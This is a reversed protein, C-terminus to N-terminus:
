NQPQSTLVASCPTSAGSIECNTGNNSIQNNQYTSGTGGNLLNVGASSHTIATENLTVSAGAGNIKLAAGGTNLINSRVLAVSAGDGSSTAVVSLASNNFAYFQTNDIAMAIGAGSTLSTAIAQIGFTANHFQSNSISVSVPTNGSPAVSIGGGSSSFGIDCDYLYLQLPAGQSSDILLMEPITGGGVRISVKDLSVNFAGGVHLAPNLTSETNSIVVNKFKVTAGPAEIDVAYFSVNFGNCSGPSGGVCGPNGGDYSIVAPQGAPGIISVPLQILLAGFIGGKTIYITGGSSINNLGQNLTRCPGQAAVSLSEGGCTSSDTGNEPDVFATNDVVGSPVAWSSATGLGVALGVIGIPLALKRMDGVETPFINRM